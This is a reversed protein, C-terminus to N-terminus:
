FFNFWRSVGIYFSSTTSPQASTATTAQYLRTYGGNLYMRRFQYQVYATVQMNSNNSISSSTSTSSLARSFTLSAVLGPLPGTGVSAGWSDGDYRTLSSDVLTGVDSASVLGSSTSYVYGRSNSFNATISGYRNGLTSFVSNSHSESDADHTLGSRSGSYGTSIHLHHPLKRFVSGTYSVGNTTDTVLASQTNERFSFSGSTGWGHIFRSYSVTDNSGFTSEAGNNTSTEFNSTTANFYGGLLYWSYTLSGQYNASRYDKANLSQDRIDASFMISLHLPMVMYGTYFSLETGHSGSRDNGSLTGGNNLIEQQVSGTVNSTYYMDANLTLNRIPSVIVSGNLTDYSSQYRDSSDGSNNVNRMASASVVGRLPINHALSLGYAHGSSEGSTTTGLASANGTNDNGSNSYLGRIDFGEWRYSSSLSFNRFHSHSEGSSGYLSNESSGQSYNFTTQPLKPVRMAWSVGWADQDGHTTYDASGPADYRSTSNYTRQINVSVPFYGASFLNVSGLVGSANSLSQSNSNARSQNYFPTINFRAFNTSHYNGSLTGRGSVNMSHSSSSVDSYSGDYGFAALGSLSM